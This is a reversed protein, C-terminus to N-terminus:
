GTAEAALESFERYLRGLERRAAMVGAMVQYSEGRARTARDVNRLATVVELAKDFLAQDSKETYRQMGDVAARCQDNIAGIKALQSASLEYGEETVLWKVPELARMLEAALVQRVVLTPRSGSAQIILAKASFHNACEQLVTMLRQKIFTNGIYQRTDQNGLRDRIERFKALPAALAGSPTKASLALLEKFDRALLVEYHMFFEPKELALFSPLVTAAEAPLILRRGNGKGLAHLQDWFAGPLKFAGTEDVSGIIVADPEVGTIAASGLVAAAASISLRRRAELARDLEAGGVRVRLHGPLTGHEKGLLETVLRATHALPSQDSGSGLTLRFRLPAEGPGPTTHAEATMELTAPGMVWKGDGETGVWQWLPVQVAAKSLPMKGAQHPVVGPEGGEGDGSKESTDNAALTQKIAYASVAPVWGSWAGKEGAKRLEAVKPHKPDALVMVDKLCAALAQGDAGADPTELWATVQWIRVRSIELRSSDADPQHTGEQYAAVLQRAKSNAPDLALALALMQAAGRQDAPTEPKLGAALAEVSKSLGTIADADLPLKDRRFAVPGEAPPLFGAAACPFAPALLLAVAWRMM